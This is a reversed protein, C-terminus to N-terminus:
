APDSAILSQAAARAEDTIQAGSLMRAIEEQRAEGDLTEIEARASNKANQKFVRIHRGGRAASGHRVRRRM